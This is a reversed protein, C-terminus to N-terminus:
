APSASDDQPDGEKARTSESRNRILPMLHRALDFKSLFADAGAALFVQEKQEVSFGVIFLDPSVHRLVRTLADGNTGSMHYDVIAISIPLSSLLELAAPADGSEHVDHGEFELLMRLVERTERNDDIVLVTERTLTRWGIRGTTGLGRGSMPRVSASRGATARLSCEKGKRIM